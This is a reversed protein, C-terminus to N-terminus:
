PNLTKRGSFQIFDYAALHHCPRAEVLARFLLIAKRLFHCWWLCSLEHTCDSVVLPPSSFSESCTLVLGQVILTNSPEVSSM